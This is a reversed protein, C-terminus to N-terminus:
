KVIGKLHRRSFPHPKMKSKRYLANYDETLEEGQKIARLTKHGDTNPKSSHNMFSQLEQNTNPSKIWMHGGGSYLPYLTRDLILDQIEPMIKRFEKEKFSYRGSIGLNFETGKPIDRIAIVGIGHISSVGLRCWVTKNLFETDM